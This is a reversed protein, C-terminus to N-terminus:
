YVPGYNRQPAWGGSGYTYKVGGREVLRDYVAQTRAYALPTRLKSGNTGDVTAGASLLLKVVEHYGGECARHLPNEGYDGEANVDFGKSILAQAIEGHGKAAANHM